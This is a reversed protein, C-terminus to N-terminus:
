RHHLDTANLREGYFDYSELDASSVLLLYVYLGGPSSCTGCNSHQALCKITWGHPMRFICCERGQYWSWLAKTAIMDASICFVEENEQARWHSGHEPMLAPNPM